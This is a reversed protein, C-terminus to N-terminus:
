SNNKFLEWLFLNTILRFNSPINVLFYHTHTLPYLLDRQKSAMQKWNKRFLMWLDWPPSGNLFASVSAEKDTCQLLAGGWGWGKNGLRCATPGNSVSTQGQSSTQWSLQSIGERGLRNGAWVGASPGDRSQSVWSSRTKMEERMNPNLVVGTVSSQHSLLFQSASFASLQFLAIDKWLWNGRGLHWIQSPPTMSVMRPPCLIM